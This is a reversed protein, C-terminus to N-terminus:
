PGTEAALAVELEAIRRLAEARLAAAVSAIKAEGSRELQPLRGDLAAIVEQLDGITRRAATGGSPRETM